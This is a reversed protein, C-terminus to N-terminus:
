WELSEYAGGVAANTETAVVGHQGEYLHTFDGLSNCCFVAGVSPLTLGDHCELFGGFSEEDIEEVICVEARNVGLADSDLLFVYLERAAQPCRPTRWNSSPLIRM